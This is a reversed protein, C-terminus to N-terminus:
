LGIQTTLYERSCVKIVDHKCLSFSTGCDIFLSHSTRAHSYISRTRNIPGHAHTRTQRATIENVAKLLLIILYLVITVHFIKRSFILCHEM